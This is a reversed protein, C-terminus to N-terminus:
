VHARGIESMDLLWVEADFRHGFSDSTEVAEILAARLAPDPDPVLSQAAAAGSMLLM